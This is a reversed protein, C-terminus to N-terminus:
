PQPILTASPALGEMLLDAWIQALERRRPMYAARNYAAEVDGAVHALMLDIIARDLDNGGLAARENMITSFTSRWGHPVHIGALGNERYLKSMTSDSIPKRWGGEGPFLWVSSRSAKLAAEVVEVAQSSLPIVFDHTADEKREKTLKMKAAPVRWYPHETDLGFFEVREALRVVGPRAATLATLRSALLTAWHVTAGGETKTLVSQAALLNLVAPRRRASRPALARRVIAAPDQEALGSGIAWVFVESMHQRVKQAMVKADRAEVARLVELVMPATISRISKKGLTPFVNLELRSLVAKAYRPTLVEKKSEHWARACEAFSDVANRSAEAKRERKAEAPDIGERLLAAAEDRKIRAASLSVQPYPGIVLQREKGGFSYKWRFVKYGTPRVLLFLSRSDALKRDKPGPVAKRCATDTLM